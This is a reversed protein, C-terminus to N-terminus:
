VMEYSLETVEPANRLICLYAQGKKQKNPYRMIPCAHTSYPGHRPHTGKVPSCAGHHPHSSQTTRTSPENRKIASYYETVCIYWPEHMWESTSPRQPPKGRPATVLLASTFMPHPNPHSGAAATTRNGEGQPGTLQPAPQGLQARLGDQARPLTGAWCVAALPGLPGDAPTGNREQVETVPSCFPVSQLLFLATTRNLAATSAPFILRTLSHEQGLQSM